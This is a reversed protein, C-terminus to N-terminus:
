SFYSRSSPFFCFKCSLNRLVKGGSYLSCKWVPLVPLCWLIKYCAWVDLWSTARLLWNRWGVNSPSSCISGTFIFYATGKRFGAMSWRKGRWCYIWLRSKLRPSQLTCLVSSVVSCTFCSVRVHEEWPAWRTDFEVNNESGRYMLEKDCLFSCCWGYHVDLGHQGFANSFTFQLWM